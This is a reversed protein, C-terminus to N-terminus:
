KSPESFAGYYAKTPGQLLLCSEIIIKVPETAPSEFFEKLGPHKRSLEESIRKKEADKMIRDFRGSLTLAMTESHDSKLMDQRTDILLSVAPNECMNKFKRSDNPTMLYIEDCSSNTAYAMLSCHPRNESATALVCTAKERILARVKERMNEDM